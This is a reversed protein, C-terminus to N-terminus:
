DFMQDEFMSIIELNNADLIYKSIPNEDLVKKIEKLEYKTGIFKKTLDSLSDELHFFDGSFQLDNIIGHNVDISINIQGWPFRKNLKQIYQPQERYVWDTSAYFKAKEILNNVENESLVYESTQLDKELFSIMENQPMNVYESLNQVRSRVSEVGKSILKEDSPTISSVMTKINTDYLLTGHMILGYKNQLFAIGSVKKGERLIDNRGSFELNLDLKNLSNILPQLYQKFTFNVPKRKAIISYMTNGEDAYVTGGGTPRRFIKVGNEKIYKQNVENEIVQNRGVVIGKIKWTFFYVEDDKLLEQLIYQELAFYFYPLLKGDYNHKVVIM